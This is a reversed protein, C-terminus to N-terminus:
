YHMNKKRGVAHILVKEQYHYYIPMTYKKNHQNLVLQNFQRHISVNEKKVLNLLKNNSDNNLREVRGMVALAIWFAIKEKDIRQQEDDKNGGIGDISLVKQAVDCGTLIEVPDLVYEAHLGVSPGIIDGASLSKSAIVQRQNSNTNTIITFNSNNNLLNILNDM